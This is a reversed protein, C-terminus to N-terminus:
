FAEDDEVTARREVREGYVNLYSTPQYRKTEYSARIPHVVGNGDTFFQVKATAM